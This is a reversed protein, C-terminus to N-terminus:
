QIGYRELRRYFTRRPMGLLRAAEARNWATTRLAELIQAREVEDFDQRSSVHPPEVAPVVAARPTAGLPPGAVPLDFDRVGLEDADSLIWANLLVNELQRVNGPWPHRQLLRLAERSVSRRDRGYRAAFIRLFHDVLLPVDESRERLSPSRVAIVNLRYFLDERFTGRAVMDALDRHTAAVVRVDVSEEKSGGVPRVVREQLVRLLGAQMKQPMEGIEDLLITGGDLERFLGKKDRDAGTFAGRVHGFLESELLHEPIAGCNIGVFRRKARTGMSHITRAVVEKGTGSEGTILVPVDADKVRDIVAYVRRMADSTGVIEGYGFHGRLVAKVSRLSRKTEELQETRRGLVEELKARAAELDRNAIELEEARARNESVLRATEIAIAAQEALARLFPVEAAFTAGSRTRTELYLAGVTVGSPAPIPVCVVSRLMLRHVSVFDAVREDSPVDLALFPEGTSVVREAVSRSFVAHPEDGGRERAAHVSLRSEGSRSRMLVFGREAELLQVARDTVRDLLRDLDVEGALERNIELLLSLRDVQPLPAGLQTAASADAEGGLNFSTTSRRSPVISPRPEPPQEHRRLGRRRPDNWFVERLDRPLPAAIAELIAMARRADDAEDAPRFEAAALQARALLSRWVWDRQGRREASSLAEDFSARAESWRAALYAVTARAFHRLAEHAGSDALLAEAAVIEDQLQLPDSSPVKALVLVRELLAEAADTRRGLEQYTEATAVLKQQGLDFEGALVCSEAELGLLQARAAGSLADREAALSDLSARARALRGVYLDLSALNFLAQRLTAVRGSRRGMDVAAELHGLAAGLDGRQHAITGLNLRTTAVHGADGAREANELAELYSAEADSLKDSRQYAFALSGFAVAALRPEGAARALSVARELTELASDHRGSLSRALGAVALADVTVDRADLAALEAAADDLAGGLARVSRSAHVEANDYDGARLHARAKQGNWQAAESPSAESLDGASAILEDLARQPEGRGILLKARAISLSLSREGRYADLYDAATDLRGRDLLRHVELLEIRVGSPIPADELAADLDDLSVIARTELREVLRRLPGPFAGTRAVIQRAVEARLSPMFRTVLTLADGETLPSVEFWGFTRESELRVEGARGGVVAVVRAGRARLGDIRGFEEAALRDADDVLVVLASPDAPLTAPDLALELSRPESADIDLVAHGGVGLSWSLRRLLTSRGSGTPGGVLLGASPPLGVVADLLEAAVVDSGVITWARRAHSGRASVAGSSEEFQLASRLEEAFEDVSPHRDGIASATARRAVARAASLHRPTLTAGTVSLIEDLSAGLAYVEAQPTLSAGRFLEPAAYKPTLGEPTAGGEKWAAALGLDVLTARGEPGVIINAPKIDGHLLLSRHLSTLLDAAQVLAALCVRADRKADILDALSAGVVLERVLYVRGSRPMRGFQLVRPVGLGEIGSLATAERVLAMVEAEDAGVRLLKLAVEGGTVRDRAAWVEGSGGEGLRDLPEYRLPFESTM